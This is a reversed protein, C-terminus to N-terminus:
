RVSACSSVTVNQRRDFVPDVVVHEIRGGQGIIFRQDTGCNWTTLIEPVSAWTEDSMTRIVELELYLVNGRSRTNTIRFFETQQGYLTVAADHALRGPQVVAVGEVSADLFAGGPGSAAALLALVSLM